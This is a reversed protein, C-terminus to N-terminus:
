GEGGLEKYKNYSYFLLNNRLRNSDIYINLSRHGYNFFRECARISAFKKVINNKNDCVIIQKGQADQVNYEANCWELNKIRNDRKNHNKHNIQCLNKPNPIFTEAVLRHVYKCSVKGNISFMITDYGNKLTIPRRNLDEGIRRVNGLSSVEYPTDKYPKWVEDM